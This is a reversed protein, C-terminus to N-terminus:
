VGFSSSDDVKGGEIFTISDPHKETLIGSDDNLHLINVFYCFDQKFPTDGVQCYSMRDCVSCQFDGDIIFGVREINVLHPVDPEPCGPEKVPTLAPGLM